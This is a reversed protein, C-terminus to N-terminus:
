IASNETLSNNLLDRAVEICARLLELHQAIQTGALVSCATVATTQEM